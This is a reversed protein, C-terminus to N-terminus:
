RSNLIEFISVGWGDQKDNKWSGFYKYEESIFVGEGEKLDDAFKGRYKEGNEYYIEGFGHKM